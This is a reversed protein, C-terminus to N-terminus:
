GVTRCRICPGARGPRGGRVFMVPVCSFLSGCRPPLVTSKMLGNPQGRGTRRVPVRVCLTLRAQPSTGESTSGLVARGPAGVGSPNAFRESPQQGLDLEQHLLLAADTDQEVDGSERIHHLQPLVDDTAQRNLQALLLVPVRLARAMDQLKRVPAGAQIYRPAKPDDSRILTLYDVVVLSLGGMRKRNRRAAAVMQGATRNRRDDVMLRWDRIADAAHALRDCHEKTLDGARIRRSSVEAIASLNRETLETHSQELSAFFVAGGGVCVNRTISLALATKGISTRAALVTVHGIGLGGCMLDDLRRFGTPLCAPREGRVRAGIEDLVDNVSARVPVGDMGASGDTIRDLEQRHRDMLDDVPGHSNDLEWVAAQLARGYERSQSARIVQEVHQHVSCLQGAKSALEGILEAGVDDLKGTSVLEAYVTAADIEANRDHLGYLAKCVVRYPYHYFHDLTLTDRWDGIQEPNGILAGLAYLEAVANSYIRGEATDSM